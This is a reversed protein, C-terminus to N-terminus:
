PEDWGFYEVLDVHEAVWLCWREEQADTWKLPRGYTGDPRKVRASIIHLEPPSGPNDFVSPPGSYSPGSGMWDVGWEVEYTIERLTLPHNETILSYGSRSM